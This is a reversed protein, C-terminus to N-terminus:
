LRLNKYITKLDRKHILRNKVLEDLICNIKNYENRNGANYSGISLKLMELLSDPNSPLIIKESITTNIGSGTTKPSHFSSITNNLVSRSRTQRPSGLNLTTKIWQWKASCDTNLLNKNSNFERYIANSDNLIEIYSNKDVESVLTFNPSKKILLEMLGHTVIYKKDGIKLYNDVITVNKNGISLKNDKLRLSYGANSKALSKGELEKLYVDIINSDNKLNVIKDKVQLQNFSDLINKSQNKIESQIKTQVENNSEIIPKFLEKKNEDSEKQINELTENKNKLKKRMRLNEEVIEKQNKPLIETFENM